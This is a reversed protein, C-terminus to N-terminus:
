LQFDVKGVIYDFIQVFTENKLVFCQIFYINGLLYLLVSQNYLTNNKHSFSSQVRRGVITIGGGLVKKFGLCNAGACSKQNMQFFILTDTVFKWIDVKIKPGSLSLPDIKSFAPPVRTM